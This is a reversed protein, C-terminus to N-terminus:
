LRSALSALVTAITARVSGELVSETDLRAQLNRSQKLQDQVEAVLAAKLPNVPTNAKDKIWRMDMSLDSGM